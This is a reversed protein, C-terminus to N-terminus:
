STTTSPNPPTLSPTKINYNPMPAM